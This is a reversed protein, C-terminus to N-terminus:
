EQAADMEDLLVSGDPNYIVYTMGPGQAALRFYFFQGDRAGLVYRRSQQPLLSGTLETGSTGPAFSVRETANAGAMAGGGDDMANVLTLEGITGDSWVICKYESGGRDRLMVVTGAESFTDSLVEGGQTDPTGIARLADICANAADSIDAFTPTAAFVMPVLFSMRTM